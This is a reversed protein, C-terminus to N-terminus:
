KTKVIYIGQEKDIYKKSPYKPLVSNYFKTCREYYKAKKNCVCLITSTKTLGLNRVIDKEGNTIGKVLLIGKINYDIKGVSPIIFNKPNDLHKSISNEKWNGIESIIDEKTIFGQEILIESLLRESAEQEKLWRKFIEKPIHEFKERSMKRQSRFEDERAKIDPRELVLVTGM